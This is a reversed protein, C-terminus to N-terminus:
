VIISKNLTIQLSVVLKKMYLASNLINFYKKGFYFIYDPYILYIFYVKYCIFHDKIGIMYLDRKKINANSLFQKIIKKIIILNCM